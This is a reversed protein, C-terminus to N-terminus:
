VTEDILDCLRAYDTIELATKSFRRVVGMQRLRGLAKAVTVRHVGMLRALDTQTLDPQFCVERQGPKLDPDKFRALSVLMKCVRLFNDSDLSDQLLVGYMRLKYASLRVLELMQQPYQTAIITEILDRSFFHVTCDARARPFAEGTEGTFCSVEGFICGQGVYFLVKEPGHTTYLLIEVLGREVYYIGNATSELGFIPSGKRFTRRVGLPTINEWSPCLNQFIPLHFQM